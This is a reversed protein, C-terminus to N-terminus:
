PIDNTAPPLSGQSTAIKTWRYGKEGTSDGVWAYPEDTEQVLFEIGEETKAGEQNLDALMNRPSRSYGLIQGQRYSADVKSEHLALYAGYELSKKVNAESVVWSGSQFRGDGIQTVGRDRKCVFHYGTVVDTESSKPHKAHIGRKKPQTRSALDQDCMELLDAAGYRIANKRIAEVAQRNLLALKEPTYNHSYAKAM